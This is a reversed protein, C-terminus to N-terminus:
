RTIPLKEEDIFTDLYGKTVSKEIVIKYDEELLESLSVHPIPTHIMLATLRSKFIINVIMVFFWWTIWIISITCKVPVPRKLKIPQEFNVQTFTQFLFNQSQITKTNSSVLFTKILSLNPNRDHYKLLLFLSLTFFSGFGTLAIKVGRSVYSFFIIRKLFPMEYVFTFSITEFKIVDSFQLVKRRANTVSLGGIAFDYSESAVGDFLRDYSRNPAEILEFTFNLEESLAMLLRYESGIADQCLVTGDIIDKKTCYVYPFYDIYAVKLTHGYFNEFDQPFLYEARPVVQSHEFKELFTLGSNSGCYFCINYIEVDYGYNVVIVNGAKNLNPITPYNVALRNFTALNTLFVIVDHVYINTNDHLYTSFQLPNAFFVMNVCKQGMPRKLPNTFTDHNFITVLTSHYELFQNSIDKTINDVHVILHYQKYKSLLSISFNYDLLPTPTVDITLNLATIPTVIVILLHVCTNLFM